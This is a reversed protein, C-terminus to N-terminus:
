HHPPLGLDKLLPGGPYLRDECTGDLVWVSLLLIVRRMWIGRSNLAGLLASGIFPTKPETWLRTRGSAANRDNAPLSDSPPFPGGSEEGDRLQGPRKVCVRKRISIDM